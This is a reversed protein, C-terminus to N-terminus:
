AHQSAKALLKQWEILGSSPRACRPERTYDADFTLIEMAATNNMARLESRRMAELEPAARKWAAVWQKAQEKTMQSSPM